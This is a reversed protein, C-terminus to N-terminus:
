HGASFPALPTRPHGFRRLFTPHLPHRHARRNKRDGGPDPRELSAGVRRADLQRRRLLDVLPRVVLGLADLQGRMFSRRVDDGPLSIVFTKM